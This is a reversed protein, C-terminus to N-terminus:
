GEKKNAEGEQKAKAQQQQRVENQAQTLVAKVEDETLLPKAGTMADKMGRALIDPDIDVPQSKVGAGINMGLAYSLKAKQTSLVLPAKATTATHPKTASSTKAAPATSPKAAPTQQAHANGLMMGAALLSLTTFSRQM